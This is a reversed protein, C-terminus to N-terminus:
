FRQVKIRPGLDVIYERLQADLHITALIAERPVVATWITGGTAFAYQQAVTLSPTWSPNRNFDELSGRYIRLVPPLEPAAGVLNFHHLGFERFITVWQERTRHWMRDSSRWEALLARARVERDEVSAM